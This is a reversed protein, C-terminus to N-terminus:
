PHDIRKVMGDAVLGDILGTVNPRTVVLYKGIESLAMAREPTANLAMLVNLRGTSLEAQKCYSAAFNELDTATRKLTLIANVTDFDTVGYRETSRAIGRRILDMGDPEVEGISRPSSAM